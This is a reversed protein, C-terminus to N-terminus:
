KSYIFEADYFSSRMNLVPMMDAGYIEYLTDESSFLNTGLGLRDGEIKAGLSALTTPYYDYTVFQRHKIRIPILDSPVNIFANYRTRVYNEAINETFDSDMTNHDGVIVITTNQYFDQSKIWELFESVQRSSCAIVNAYQETFEDDCLECVYGDEHHTDVTLMTFNFPEKNKSIQTLQEKAMSFLKQDEFGWWVKYDDPIKNEEKAWNYDMIKYDGHQRFFLERGGFAGESGIMLYNKYGNEKLVDGIAEVGPFFSAFNNMSNGEVPIKLPLGTSHSFMAAMTWGSGAAWLNGGLKDTNSFSINSKAIETLEPIYNDSFAGGEDLSSYTTEMSELYLYILNRKKEPFEIRGDSFIYHDEIFTSDSFQVSLFDKLKFQTNMTHMSLVLILVAGINLLAILSSYKLHFLTLSRRKKIVRLLVSYSVGTKKFMSLLFYTLLMTGLTPLFISIMASSIFSKDTGDLPVKLHFIIQNMDLNSFQSALWLTTTLILVSVSAILVTKTISWNLRNKM